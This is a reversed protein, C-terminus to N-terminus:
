HNMHTMSDAGASSESNVKITFPFTIVKGDRQFQAWARFTGPNKFTAMFEAVSNTMGTPHAHIFESGDKSILILHGPAGLYQEWGDAVSLKVQIMSDSGIGYDAPNLIKASLNGSKSEDSLDFGAPEVRQRGAVNLENKAVFASGGALKGDAFVLYDGGNEFTITETWTGDDAVEPHLHRFDTLGSDVVVLHLLKEHTAEFRNKSLGGQADALKFKLTGTTANAFKASDPLFDLNVNGFATSHAEHGMSADMPESGTVRGRLQVAVILAVIIGVASITVVTVRNLKM